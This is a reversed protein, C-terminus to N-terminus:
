DTIPVGLVQPNEADNLRGVENTTNKGDGNNVAGDDTSVQAVRSSEIRVTKEKFHSNNKHDKRFVWM